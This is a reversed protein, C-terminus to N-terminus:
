EIFIGPKGPKAKSAKGQPDYKKKDNVAFVKVSKGVRKSLMESDYSDVENPIAYLYIKEGEKGSKERLIKLINLIDSVGREVNKEEIDFKEDIKKEDVEPWSSLSIFGKGKARAWLEESMHPAFVSLVKLFDMFAGKEPNERLIDLWKMLKVVAANFRFSDIDSSIEKVFKSKYHESKVDKKGNLKLEFVKKVFRYVGEVGEDSWEMSSDPSAVFMLFLRASDIGFKKSIEDQTVVNGSSKSMKNGDKNVIGQNFLRMFPEDVKVLGMDRLVKTFFRSYILHGVAHEIGGVYQDVPMWYNAKKGDFAADKNKSDCYRLFYWSSDMFGGMTDTERRAKAKCKPCKVDQFKKSTLIPNGKEGFKVDEPLLVPLDKENVPVIGCKDCYIIPIPTGWYRQRSILWDRLKYNTTKKGLSKASLANTIHEKAEISELNDFGASNILNGAGTYAEKMTNSSLETDV